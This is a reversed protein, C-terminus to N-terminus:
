RKKKTSKTKVNASAKVANEILFTMERRTPMFKMTPKPLPKESEEDSDESSSNKQEEAAPPQEAAETKKKPIIDVREGYDEPPWTGEHKWIIYQKIDSRLKAKCKNFHKILINNKMEAPINLYKGVDTKKKKKARGKKKQKSDKIMERELVM